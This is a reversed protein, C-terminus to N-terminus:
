QTILISRDREASDGTGQIGYIDEESFSTLIKSEALLPVRLKVCNEMVRLYFKTKSLESKHVQAVISDHTQNVIDAGAKHLEVMAKKAITAGYSQIPTNYLQKVAHRYRKRDDKDMRWENAVGKILNLDPLRRVLGNPCIVAGLKQGDKLLGQQWRDLGKWERFVSNIIEQCDDLSYDDGLEGKLRWKSGRYIILFNVVKAVQRTIGIRDAMMQHPDAKPDSFMEIMVQDQSMHAAVRLELQSYDAYWFVHDDDNPVFFSRFPGKTPINQFNPSKSSLRGTVPGGKNGEKGHGVQLYQPYIRDGELLSLLGKGGVEGIFTKLYTRVKRLKLMTDIIPQLANEKPLSWQLSRLYTEDTKLGGGKTFEKMASPIGVVQLLTALHRGSDWNFKTKFKNSSRKVKNKGAESKRKDRALNYLGEEVQLIYSECITDLEKTLQVEQEQLEVRAKEVRALDVRVGRQEMYLLVPELPMAENVYYDLPSQPHGLREKVNADIRKVQKSLELFLKLTNNCDEECYEAIIDFYAGSKLDERVLEGVHKLGAMSVARDLESKGELSSKGFLAQTLPKLGLERNENIMKALIKTDWIKATIPIVKSLFHLDFRLNHGVVNVSPDCLMSLLRAARPAGEQIERASYYETDDEEFAVGVGHLQDLRYNLGTTEVDVAILKSM